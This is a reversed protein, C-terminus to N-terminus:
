VQLTVVGGNVTLAVFRHRPALLVQACPYSQLFSLIYRFTLLLNSCVTTQNCLITPAQLVTQTGHLWAPSTLSLVHERAGRKGNEGM